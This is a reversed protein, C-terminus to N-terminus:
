IQVTDPADEYQSIYKAYIEKLAHMNASLYMDLHSNHTTHTLTAWYGRVNTSDAESYKGSLIEESLAYLIEQSMEAFLFCFSGDTRKMTQVDAAPSAGM